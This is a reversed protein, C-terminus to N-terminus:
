RKPLPLIPFSPFLSAEPSLTKGQKRSERKDKAKQKYLFSSILFQKWTLMLEQEINRGRCKHVSERERQRDTERKKENKKSKITMMISFFSKYLNRFDMM